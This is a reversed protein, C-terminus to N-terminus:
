TGKEVPRVQSFTKLWDKVAAKSQDSPEANKKLKFQKVYPTRRDLGIELTARQPSFVQYIYCEGKVISHVYSGVCHLMVRGERLVQKSDTLPRIWENGPIPPAAFRILEAAYKRSNFRNVWRDHLQRLAKPTRCHCLAEHVNDIGLQQGLRQTDQWLERLHKAAGMSLAIDSGQAGAKYLSLMKSQLLDPLYQLVMLVDISIESFHFLASLADPSELTGRLVYLENMDGRNLVIKRLLKIKAKSGDGTLERLIDRQKLRVRAKVKDLWDEHDYYHAIILWLLIPNNDFLECCALDQASAQLLQIQLYQFRRATHRAREPLAGLFQTLALDEAESAMLPILVAYPEAKFPRWQDESLQYSRLGKDWCAYKLCHTLEPRYDVVLDQEDVTYRAVLSLM